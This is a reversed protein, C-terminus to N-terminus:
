RLTCIFGAIRKMVAPEDDDEGEYEVSLFGRYGSDGLVGRIKHWDFENDSGDAAVDFFKAHV